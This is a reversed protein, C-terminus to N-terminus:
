NRAGAMTIDALVRAMGPYQGIRQPVAHRPRQADSGAPHLHHDAFATIYAFAGYAFLAITREVVLLPRPILFFGSCDSISGIYM